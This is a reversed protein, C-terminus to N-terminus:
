HGGRLFTADFFRPRNVFNVMLVGDESWFINLHANQHILRADEFATRQEADPRHVTMYHSFVSVKYNPVVIVYSSLVNLSTVYYMHGIPLKTAPMADYKISPQDLPKAVVAGLFTPLRRTKRFSEFAPLAGFNLFSFPAVQTLTANIAARLEEPYENM